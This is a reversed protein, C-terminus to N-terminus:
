FSYKPKLALSDNLITSSIAINWVIPYIVCNSFRFIDVFYVDIIYVILNKRLILSDYSLWDWHWNFFPISRYLILFIVQWSFFYMRWNSSRFKYRLEFYFFCLRRCVILLFQYTLQLIFSNSDKFSYLLIKRALGYESRCLNGVNSSM